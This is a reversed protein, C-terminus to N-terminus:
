ALAPAFSPAQFLSKVRSVLNGTLTVFPIQRKGGVQACLKYFDWRRLQDAGRYGNMKAFSAETFLNVLMLITTNLVVSHVFFSEVM